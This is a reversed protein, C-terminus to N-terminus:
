KEYRRLLRNNTAQNNEAVLTIFSGSLHLLRFFDPQRDIRLGIKGKMPALSTLEILKESDGPVANRVIFNM